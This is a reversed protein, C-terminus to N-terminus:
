RHASTPLAYHADPFRELDSRYHERGGSSRGADNVSAFRDGTEPSEAELTTGPDMWQRGARGDLDASGPQAPHELV